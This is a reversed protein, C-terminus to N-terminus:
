GYQTWTHVHTKVGTEGDVVNYGGRPDRSVYDGNHIMVEGKELKRPDTKNTVTRKHEQGKKIKPQSGKREGDAKSFKGRGDNNPREGHLREPKPVRQQMIRSGENQRNGGVSPQSSSGSGIGFIGDFFGGGGGKGSSKGGSGKGSGKGSSSWSNPLIGPM